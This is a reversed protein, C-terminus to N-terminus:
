RVEEFQPQGQADLSVVRVSRDGVTYTKGVEYNEPRSGKTRGAEGRRVQAAMDVVQGTRNDVVLAPGRLKVVGGSGDPAAYEEGPVVTYGPNAESKGQLAMLTQAAAKRKADTDATVYASRAAQLQESEAMTNARFGRASASNLESEAQRRVGLDAVGRAIETQDATAQRKSASNALRSRLLDDMTTKRPNMGANFANIGQADKVQKDYTYRQDATMGNRPDFPRDLIAKAEGPAMGPVVSVGAGRPKFGAAQAGQYNLPGSINEGSFEKIGNPQRRVGVMGLGLAQDGSPAVGGTAPGPVGGPARPAAAPNSTGAVGSGNVQAAAGRGDADAANLLSVGAALPVSPALVGQVLPSSFGTAVKAAGKLLGAVVPGGIPALAAAANSVGRSFETGNDRTGSGGKWGM